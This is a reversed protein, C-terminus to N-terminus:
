HAAFVHTASLPLADYSLSGATSCAVMTGYV